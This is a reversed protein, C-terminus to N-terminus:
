LRENPGTLFLASFLEARRDIDRAAIRRVNDLPLRRVSRSDSMAVAGFSAVSTTKWVATRAYTCERSWRSLKAAVIRRLFTTQILLSDGFRNENGAFLPVDVWLAPRKM